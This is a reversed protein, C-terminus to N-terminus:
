KGARTKKRLIRDCKIRAELRLWRRALRQWGKRYNTWAGFNSEDYPKRNLLVNFLELAKKQVTNM